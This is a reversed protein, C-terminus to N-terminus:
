HDKGRRYIYKEFEWKSVITKRCFGALYNKLTGRYIANGVLTASVGFQEQLQKVSCYTMKFMEIQQIEFRYAFARSNLHEITPNGLLGAEVYKLVTKENCRLENAVQKLNYGRTVIRDEKIIKALEVPDLYLDSLTYSVTQTYAKLGNIRIFFIMKSLSLGSKSYKEFCRALSIKEEVGSIKIPNLSQLLSLIQTKSFFKEKYLYSTYELIDNKILEMVSGVYVGLIKATELATVRDSKYMLFPQIQELTKKKLFYTAEGKKIYCEAFYDLKMLYAWESDTIGFQIKIQGKTLYNEEIYASLYGNYSKSNKPANMDQEYLSIKYTQYVDAIFCLNMSSNIIKEFNSKRRRNGRTGELQFSLQLLDTFRINFHQFIWYVDALLCVLGQKNLPIKNTSEIKYPPMDSQTFSDLGHFLQAFGLLVLMIDEINSLGLYLDQKGLLFETLEKQSELIFDEIVKETKLKSLIRGCGGCENKFLSYITWTSNCGPCKDLLYVRHEMCVNILNMGWTFNQHIKDELCLPCCKTRTKLFFTNETGSRVNLSKYSHKYLTDKSVLSLLQRCVDKNIQNSILENATILENILPFPTDHYNRNFTRFLYSSLTESEMIPLKNLFPKM